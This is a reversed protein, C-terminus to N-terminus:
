DGEDFTVPMPISLTVRDRGRRFTAQQSDIGSLRYGDLVRGLRLVKGDVVALRTGESVFTAQLVHSAEFAEPSGPQPGADEEEKLKAEQRLKQYHRLMSSSPSFVNRVLPPDSLRELWSLSRDAVQPSTEPTRSPHTRRPKARNPPASPTEEADASAPEGLFLRDILFGGGALVVLALYITKKNRTM